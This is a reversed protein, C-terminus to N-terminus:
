LRLFFCYHRSRELEFGPPAEGSERRGVGADAADGTGRLVYGKGSVVRVTPTEVHYVLSFSSDRQSCYFRVSRIAYKERAGPGFPFLHSLREAPPSDSRSM